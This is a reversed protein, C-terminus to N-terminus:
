NVKGFVEVYAKKVASGIHKDNCRYEDYWDCIEGSSFTLRLMDWAIRTLLDNYDHDAIVDNVHAQWADSHKFVSFRSVIEPYVPALKLTNNM